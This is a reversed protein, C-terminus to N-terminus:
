AHPRLLSELERVHRSRALGEGGATACSACWQARGLALKLMEKAVSPAAGDASYQLALAAYDRDFPWPLKNAELELQKLFAAVDELSTATSTKSVLDDVAATSSGERRLAEGTHQFDNM